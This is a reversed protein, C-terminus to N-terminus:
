RVARAKETEPPTPERTQPASGGEGAVRVRKGDFPAPLDSVMVRDGPALAGGALVVRDDARALVRASVGELTGGAIRWVTSRGKLAQPPVSVARRGELPVPLSVSVLEDVRLARPAADFPDPVRVVLAVTRTDAVVRPDVEVVTGTGLRERPPDTASLTVTRGIARSPDGLLSLARPGLGV